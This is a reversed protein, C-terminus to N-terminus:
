HLVRVAASRLGRRDGRDGEALRLLAMGILGCGPCKAYRRSAVIAQTPIGVKTRAASEAHAALRVLDASISSIAPVKRVSSASKWPFVALASSEPRGTGLM